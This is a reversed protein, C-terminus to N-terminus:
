DPDITNAGYEGTEERYTQVISECQAKDVIYSGIVLYDMDTTLFVRIADQPTCVIPEGRVNFSTNIILPCGTKDAFVSILEHYIQNSERAVTQLRATGDVHTIAPVDERKVPAVFLMHPSQGPFDFYEHAREALVSPAFPRFNERFKIKLNVRQWNEKSRADALISRNGLARPGWEMRGQFWGVIHQDVIMEATKELLEARSAKTFLLEKESLAEEIEKDSYSPGWACHTMEFGRPKNLVQHWVWYAVGLAGGADGAAPQIYINEFGAEKLTAYNAVCNLAVGGAMCLNRKGTKEQVHKALKVMVENTLAQISAALDKHCQELESEPDRRPFGFVKALPGEM